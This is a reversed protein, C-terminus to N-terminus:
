RPHANANLRKVLVAFAGPRYMLQRSEEFGIRKGTKELTEDFIPLGHAIM